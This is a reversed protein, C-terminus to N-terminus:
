HKMKEMEIRSPESERRSLKRWLVKLKALNVWSHVIVYTQTHFLRMLKRNALVFARFMDEVTPKPTRNQTLWRRSFLLYDASRNQLQETTTRTRTNTLTHSNKHTHTQAISALYDRDRLFLTVVRRHGNGTGPLASECWMDSSETSSNNTKNRTGFESSLDLSLIM